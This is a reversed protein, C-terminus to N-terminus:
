EEEEEKWGEEEEEELGVRGRKVKHKLLTLSKLLSASSNDGGHCLSGHLDEDNRAPHLAM